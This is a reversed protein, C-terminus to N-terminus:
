LKIEIVPSLADRRNRGRGALIVWVIAERQTGVMVSGHVAEEDSWARVRFMTRADPADARGQVRANFALLGEDCEIPLADNRRGFLFEIRCLFAQAPALFM